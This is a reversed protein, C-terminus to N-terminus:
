VCGDIFTVSEKMNVKGSENMKFRYEIDPGITSANIMSKNNPFQYTCQKITSDNILIRIDVKDANNALACRCSYYTCLCNPSRSEKGFITGIPFSNANSYYGFKWQQQMTNNIDILTNWNGENETKYQIQIQDTLSHGFHSGEIIVSGYFMRGASEPLESDTALVKHTNVGRAQMHEWESPLKSTVDEAYSSENDSTASGCSDNPVSAFGNCINVNLNKDNSFEVLQKLWNNLPTPADYNLSPDLVYVMNTQKDRVVPAVHYWFNLVASNEPGFPSYLSLNGFAFIKGPRPLSSNNYLSVAAAAREFCYDIPYHWPITRKLNKEIPDNLFRNNKLFEFQQQITAYDPWVPANELIKQQSEQLAASWPVASDLISEGEGINHKLTKKAISHWDQNADRHALNPNAAFTTNSITLLLFSNFLLKKLM